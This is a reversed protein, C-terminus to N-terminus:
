GNRAAALPRRALMMNLLGTIQWVRDSAYGELMSTKCLHGQAVAAECATVQVLAGLM